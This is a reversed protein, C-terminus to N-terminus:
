GVVERCDDTEDSRILEVGGPGSAGTSMRAKVSDECARVEM